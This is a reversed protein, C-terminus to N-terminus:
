RRAALPREISAHASPLGTQDMIAVMKQYDEPTRLPM